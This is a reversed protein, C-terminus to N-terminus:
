DWDQVKIKEYLESLLKRRQEYDPVYEGVVKWFRKSHNHEITHALEHVVVYDVAREDAM